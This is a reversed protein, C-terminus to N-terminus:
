TAQEFFVMPQDSGFHLSSLVPPFSSSQYDGSTQVFIIINKLGRLPSGGKKLKTGWGSRGLRALTFGLIMELWFHNSSKSRQHHCCCSRLKLQPKYKQHSKKMRRRIFDWMTWSITSNYLIECLTKFFLFDSLAGSKQQPDNERQLNWKNRRVPGFWESILSKFVKLSIRLGQIPKAFQTRAHLRKHTQIFTNTLM